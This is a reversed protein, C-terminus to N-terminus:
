RYRFENNKHYDDLGDPGDMDPREPTITGDTSTMKTTSRQQPRQQPPGGTMKGDYWLDGEMRPLMEISWIVVAASAFQKM